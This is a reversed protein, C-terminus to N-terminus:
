LPDLGAESRFIDGLEEARERLLPESLPDRSLICSVVLSVLREMRERFHADNVFRERAGPSHDVLYTLLRAPLRQEWEEIPLAAAQCAIRIERWRLDDM